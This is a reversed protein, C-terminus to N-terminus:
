YALRLNLEKEQVDTIDEVFTEFEKNALVLKLNAPKPNNYVEDLSYHLSDNIPNFGTTASMSLQSEFSQNTMEGLNNMAKSIPKTHDNIGKALGNNLEEGIEMFVRSPSRIGFFNKVGGIIGKGVNIAGNVLNGAINTFGKSLGGLLDAGIKVFEGGFGLLASIVSKIIKPIAKVITSIIQPLNKM